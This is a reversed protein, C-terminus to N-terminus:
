RADNCRGLVARSRDHSAGHPAAQEVGARDRQRRRDPGCQSLAGVQAVPLRLERLQLSRDPLRQGRDISDLGVVRGGEQGTGARGGDLGHHSRHDGGVAGQEDGGITDVALSHSRDGAAGADLKDHDFGPDGIRDVQHADFSRDGIVRFHGVHRRHVVLGGDPTEVM